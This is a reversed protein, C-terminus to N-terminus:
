SSTEMAFFIFFNDQNAKDLIGGFGVFIGMYMPSLKSKVNQDLYPVGLGYLLSNGIGGIVSVWFLCHTIYVTEKEDAKEVTHKKTLLLVIIEVSSKGMSQKMAPQFHFLSISVYM